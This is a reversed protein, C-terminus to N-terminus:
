KRKPKAHTGSKGLKQYTMIDSQENRHVLGDADAASSKGANLAAAGTVAAAASTKMFDRRDMSDHRNSSDM